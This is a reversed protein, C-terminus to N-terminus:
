RWSRPRCGAGAVRPVGRAFVCVHASWVGCVVCVKGIKVVCVCLVCLVSALGRRDQHVRPDEQPCCDHAGCRVRPGQPPHGRAVEEQAQEEEGTVCGGWVFGWGWCWVGHVHPADSHAAAWSELTECCCEWETHQPRKSQTKPASCVEKAGKPNPHHAMQLGTLASHRAVGQARARVCM